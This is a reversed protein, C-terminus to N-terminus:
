DKYITSKDVNAISEAELIIKDSMLISVAINMWNSHNMKEYWKIEIKVTDSYISSLQTNYIYTSRM